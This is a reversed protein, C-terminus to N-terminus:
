ASVLVGAAAEAANEDNSGPGDIPIDIVFTTGQGPATQVDITGEHATVIRHAMSLGQGTGRGVGKTTFFPDFIKAAVEAAHRM